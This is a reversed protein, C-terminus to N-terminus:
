QFPDTGHIATCIMKMLLEDDRYAPFAIRMNELTRFVKRYTAPVVSKFLRTQPKRNYMKM